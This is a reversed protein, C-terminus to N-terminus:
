GAESGKAHRYRNTPRDPLYVQLHCLCVSDIALSLFSSWFRKILQWESCADDDTFQYCFGAVAVKTCCVHLCLDSFRTLSICTWIYIMQMYDALTHPPFLFSSVVVLYTGLWLRTMLMENYVCYVISVSRGLCVVNVCDLKEFMPLLLLSLNVICSPNYLTCFLWSFCVACHCVKCKLFQM